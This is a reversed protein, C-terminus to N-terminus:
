LALMLRVDRVNTGTPGPELTQNLLNFFTYADSNDLFEQADLGLARARALTDADTMAGAAPSNGDIGDTGGSLAVFHLNNKTSTGSSRIKDLEIAWRLVTEANRGGIGSGRVPCAFEGGSILCVPRNAPTRERLSLLRLISAQVGETVDQDILDSAIEVEYNFERALAAASELAHHNDLLVYHRRFTQEATQHTASHSPEDLQEGPQEILQLISQPLKQALKYRAVIQRAGQPNAPREITPGSAVNSEDGRDTDSIILSIQTALPARHALGGGKISSVARRVTNIEAISAGCGVLTGNMERLEALTINEDRPWEIMASGGGSILFIVLAREANARDLLALSAQAAALSAENPLPHGGAFFNWAESLEFGTHGSAKEPPVGTAVGATLKGALIKDLAAAMPYAAKGIAVSYIRSSFVSLEFHNECVSLHSDSFSVAQRIASDAAISRLAAAFIERADHHLDEQQLNRNM